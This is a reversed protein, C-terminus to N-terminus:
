DSLVRRAKDYLYIIKERKRQVYDSNKGSFNKTKGMYDEIIYFLLQTGYGDHNRLPSLMKGLSASSHRPFHKM